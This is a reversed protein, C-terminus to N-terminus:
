CHFWQDYCVWFGHHRNILDNDFISRVILTKLMRLVQDKDDPQFQKKVASLLDHKYEQLKVIEHDIRKGSASFRKFEEKM